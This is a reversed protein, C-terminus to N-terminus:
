KHLCTFQTFVVIVLRSFLWLNFCLKTLRFLACPSHRPVPLRLLVRYAAILWPSGCIPTIIRPHGFPAIRRSYLGTMMHHIWLWILPVVRVSVDLYPSSFFDVSIGSTTALSRPAPWVPPVQVEPTQPRMYANSLKLRLTHSLM